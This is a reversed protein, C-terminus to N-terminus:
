ALEFAEYGNIATTVEFNYLKLIVSMMYLQSRDDNAVLVKYKRKTV